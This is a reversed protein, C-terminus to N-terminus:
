APTGSGLATRWVDRAVPAFAARIDLPQPAAARRLAEGLGTVSAAPLDLDDPLVDNAVRGEPRFRITPLGALAAELGVTTGAYVVAAVGKQAALSGNARALGPEEAFPFPTMPHDRVVFRLGARALPRVAAVMEAAVALDSPLAVFVPGAPDCALPAFSPMRWAGGVALRYSDYGFARLRAAGAPGSCLIRDPLSAEDPNSAPAYNWERAGVTAHQYGVTACRARRCARVFAREWSHNEWPWAVAAPKALALWRHQCHIQWAIMAAQGTGGERAAARRVLWTNPGNINPRWRARWLGLAAFPSGFAHLAFTRGSGCLGKARALPGDAHLIRRLGPMEGMLDGFYADFGDARSAPHSYTLIWAEGQSIGGSQRGFRLAALFMRASVLARSLIGRLRLRLEAPWLPPPRTARVGPRAALHRFLWPDDCVLLVAEAEAAWRDVLRTWALMLGFDSANAACSPMHAYLASGDRGLARALALWEDRISDLAEELVRGFDPIRRSPDLGLPASGVACWVDHTKRAAENTGSLVVAM